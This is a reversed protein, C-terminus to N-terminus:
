FVLSLTKFLKTQLFNLLTRELYTAFVGPKILM